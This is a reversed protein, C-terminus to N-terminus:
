GAMFQNKWLMEVGTSIARPSSKSHIQPVLYKLVSLTADIWMTEGCPKTGSALFRSLVIAQDNANRRPKEALTQRLGVALEQLGYEGFDALRLYNEFIHTRFHFGCGGIRGSRL